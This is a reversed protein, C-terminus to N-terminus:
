SRVAGPSGALLRAVVVVALAIVVAVKNEILFRIAGSLEIRHLDFMSNIDIGSKFLAYGFLLCIAAAVCFFLGPFEKKM